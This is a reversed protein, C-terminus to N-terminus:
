IHSVVPPARGPSTIFFESQIVPNTIQIVKQFTLVQPTFVYVEEILTSNLSHNFICAQCKDEQQKTDSLDHHHLFESGNIAFLAIVLILPTIYKRLNNL